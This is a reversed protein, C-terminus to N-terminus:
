TGESMKSDLAKALHEVETITTLEQVQDTTLGPDVGLRRGIRETIQLLRTVEREALLNIQLDLHARRDSLYSMRNQKILVFASLLVAEISVLMCLLQFPYPDFPRVAPVLGLNIVAWAALWAMQLAVFAITGIFNAILDSAKEGATRGRLAAEELRLVTEISEIVAQPTPQLKAPM